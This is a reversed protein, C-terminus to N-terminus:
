EVTTPRKNRASIMTTVIWAMVVWLWPM